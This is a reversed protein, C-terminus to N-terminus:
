KVIGTVKEKNYQLIFAGYYGQQRVKDLIIKAAELDYFNGLRYVYQGYSKVAQVQGFSDFEPFTLNGQTYSGLQIKYSVDPHPVTDVIVPAPKPLTVPENDSITKEGALTKEEATKSATSNTKLEKAKPQRKAKTKSSTIGAGTPEPIGEKRVNERWIAIQEELTPTESKEKIVPAPATIKEQKKEAKSKAPESTKMAVATTTDLASVKKEEEKKPSVHVPNEAVNSAPIVKEIKKETKPKTPEPTKIVVVASTDLPMISKEVEKKPSVQVPREAATLEDKPNQVVAKVITDKKPQIIKAITDKTPKAPVVTSVPEKVPAPKLPAAIKSIQASPKVPTTKNGKITSSQKSISKVLSDMENKNVSSTQTGTKDLVINSPVNDKSYVRNELLKLKNGTLLYDRVKVDFRELGYTTLEDTIKYDQNEFIVKYSNNMLLKIQFRGDEDLDLERLKKTTYNVMRMKAFKAPKNTAADTVQGTFIIYNDMSLNNTASNAISFIADKKLPLESLISDGSIKGITNVTYTVPRFNDKSINVSFTKDKAVQFVARGNDNTVGENIKIGNTSLQVLAYDVPKGTASDTANIILQLNFPIFRYLDFGGKGGMRDSSVYGTNIENDYIVSIDDGASNIPAPQMEVDQWVNDINKGAYIDFGGFGGERDSAFYLINDKLDQVMFPNLEDGKSNLLEGLNIPKTWSGNKMTSKWIDFGGQGGPLNASFYMVTGDSNLAPHRFSYGDTNFPFPKMHLFTGGLNDALFIKEDNKANKEKSSVAEDRASFAVINGDRTYSLGTVTLQPLQTSLVDVPEAFNQFERVVQHPMYTPKEGKGEPNQVTIYIPNTRLITLNTEDAATNYTYNELKFNDAQASAKLVRECQNALDMVKNVDGTQAAYMLYGDLAKQYEGMLRFTNAYNFLNLKSTYILQNEKDYWQMATAYDKKKVYLEAIRFADQPDRNEGYYKEQYHEIVKDIGGNAILKAIYAADWKKALSLTTIAMCSLFLIKKMSELNIHKWGTQAL